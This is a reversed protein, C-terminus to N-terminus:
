AANAPSQRVPEVRKAVIYVAESILPLLRYRTVETLGSKALLIRIDANSVPYNAPPQHRLWRKVRRRLRQYPSDFSHNIVVISRSLKAVGTLFEIQQDLAFHMLVRACLAGEFLPGDLRLSKMDVVESSFRDGFRSLRQRAVNLMEQSIDLGHVNYGAVLLPEALRGTGCPADAVTQGKAVTAFCKTITRQELKNFVRGPLSSFRKRDYEAAVDHSKYHEDPKWNM